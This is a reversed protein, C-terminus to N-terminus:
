GAANDQPQGSREPSRDDSEPGQASDQVRQRDQRGEKEDEFAEIIVKDVVQQCERSFAKAAEKHSEKWWDTEQIYKM